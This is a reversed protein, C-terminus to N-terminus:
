FISRFCILRHLRSPPVLFVNTFRFFLESVNWICDEEKEQNNKSRKEPIEQSRDAFLSSADDNYDYSSKTNTQALNQGRRPCKSCKNVTITAKKYSQLNEMRDNNPILSPRHGPHELPWMSNTRLRYFLFRNAKPLFHLTLNHVEKLYWYTLQELNMQSPINKNRVCLWDYMSMLTTMASRSSLAFRDNIGNARKAYNWSQANSGLGWSVSYLADPSQIKEEKFIGEPHPLKDIYVTDPRALIIWDFEIETKKEYKIRIEDVLKRYYLQSLLEATYMGNKSNLGRGGGHYWRGKNALEEYCARPIKLKQLDGKEENSSTEIFSSSRGNEGWKSSEFEDGVLPRDVHLIEGVKMVNKHEEQMSSLVEEYTHSFADREAVIFVIIQNYIKADIIPKFINEVVSCWTRNFTRAQGTLYVAVNKKKIEARDNDNRNGIADDKSSLFNHLSDQDEEKEDESSSSEHLDDLFDGHGNKNSKWLGAINHARDFYASDVGGRNCSGILLCWKKRKRFVVVSAHIFFVAFISTLMTMVM